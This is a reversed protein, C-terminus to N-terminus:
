YQFLFICPTGFLFIFPTGFYLFVPHVSIYFYLTYRYLYLYLNYWYISLLTCLYLSKPHVSSLLYCPTCFKLTEAKFSVCLSSFYLFIPHVSINLNQWPYQIYRFILIKDHIYRFILIKNHINSLGFNSNEKCMKPNKGGDNM